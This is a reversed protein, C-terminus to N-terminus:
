GECLAAGGRGASTKGGEWEKPHIYLPEEYTLDVTWGVM